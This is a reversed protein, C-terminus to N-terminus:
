MGRRLFEAPPFAGRSGHHRLVAEAAHAFPTSRDLRSCSRGTLAILKTQRLAWESAAQPALSLVSDSPFGERPRVASSRTRGSRTRRM